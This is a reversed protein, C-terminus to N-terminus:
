FGYYSPFYIFLVKTTKYNYMANGTAYDIPMPDFFYYKVNKTELESRDRYLRATFAEKFHGTVFLYTRLSLSPTCNLLVFVGLIICVRKAWKPLKKMAYGGKM